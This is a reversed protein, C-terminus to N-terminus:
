RETHISVLLKEKKKTTKLQQMGVYASVSKVKPITRQHVLCLNFTRSPLVNKEFTFDNIVCVYLTWLSKKEKLPTEIYLIITCHLSINM